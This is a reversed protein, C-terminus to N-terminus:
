LDSFCLQKSPIKINILTCPPTHQIQHDWIANPPGRSNAVPPKSWFGRTNPRCQGRTALSIKSQCLQSNSHPVLSLSCPYMLQLTEESSRINDSISHPWMLLILFWDKGWTIRKRAKYGRGPSYRNEPSRKWWGQEKMWKWCCGSLVKQIKAGYATSPICFYVFCVLSGGRTNEYDKNGATIDPRQFVWM